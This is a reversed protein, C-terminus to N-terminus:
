IAMEPLAAFATYTVAEEPTTSSRLRGLYHLADEGARPRHQTLEALQPMAAYLDAPM